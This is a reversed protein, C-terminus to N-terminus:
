VCCSRCHLRWPSQCLPWHSYYSWLCISSYGRSGPMATTFLGGAAGDTLTTSGAGPTTLNAFTEEAADQDTYDVSTGPIEDYFYCGNLDNGGPRVGWLAGGLLAM